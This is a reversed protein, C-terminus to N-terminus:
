ENDWNMLNRIYQEEEDELNMGSTIADLSGGNNNLEIEIVKILLNELQEKKM